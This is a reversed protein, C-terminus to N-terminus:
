EHVARGVGCSDLKQIEQPAFNTNNLGDVFSARIGSYRRGIQANTARNTSPEDLAKVQHPAVM